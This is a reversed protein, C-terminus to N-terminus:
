SLITTQDHFNGNKDYYGRFRRGKSPNFNRSYEVCSREGYANTFTKGDASVGFRIKKQPTATSGSSGGSSGAVASQNGREAKFKVQDWKLGYYRRLQNAKEKAAEFGQISQIRAGLYQDPSCYHSRKLIEDILKELKQRRITIM